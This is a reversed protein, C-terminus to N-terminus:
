GTGSPTLVCVRHLAQPMKYRDIGECIFIITTGNNQLAARHVATDVGTAGGSVICIGALALDRACSAAIDLGLPTAKRAGSFGVAQQDLLDANGLTFVNGIDKITAKAFTM